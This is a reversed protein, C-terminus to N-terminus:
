TAVAVLLRPNQEIHYLERSRPAQTKDSRNLLYRRPRMVM